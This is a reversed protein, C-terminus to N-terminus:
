TVDKNLELLIKFSKLLIKILTKLKLDLPGFFSNSNFLANPKVREPISSGTGTIKINM